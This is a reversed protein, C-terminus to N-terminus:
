VGKRAEQEPLVLVGASVYQKTLRCLEHPVEEPMAFQLRYAACSDCVSRYACSSCVAPRPWSDAAQHVEKWAETFGDRLPIGEIMDMMSCPHMTGKWSITFCSRGGGCLLGRETGAATQRDSEETRRGTEPLERVNVEQLKRGNLSALYRHIRIYTEADPDDKQGSRGTEEKPTFLNTNISVGPSLAHAVRVTEFVDEGLYRNPTVCIRVPLEADQLMRIHEVVQSFARVGTVREYTDESDGYLTIQIEAPTHEKFFDIWEQDLLVGNTFVSVECGLSHLYLFLEKFGPYTLCEGGTLTAHVMGARFAQYMLDKWQDVSLLKQEKMQAPTLHVYCMRCNLNCLPTLEFDGFVPVGQERAKRGLYRTFSDFTQREEGSKERLSDIYECGDM